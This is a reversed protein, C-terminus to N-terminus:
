DLVTAAITRWGAATSRLQKQPQYCDNVRIHPIWCLLLLLFAQSQKVRKVDHFSAPHISSKNVHQLTSVRILRGNRHYQPILQYTFCVHVFASVCFCVWVCNKVDRTSEVKDSRQEKGGARQRETETEPHDRTRGQMGGCNFLNHRYELSGGFLLCPVMEGFSLALVQVHPAFLCLNTCKSKM